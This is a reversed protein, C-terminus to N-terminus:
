HWSGSSDTGTVLWWWLLSDFNGRVCSWEMEEHGIAPSWLSFSLVEEEGTGRSTATSQLSAVGWGERRLVSCVLHSQSDRSTKGELGKTLKTAKEPWQGATQYGEWMKTGLVACLILPLVAGTCLLTPYCDGKSDEDGSSGCSTIPEPCVASGYEFQWWDILIRKSWGTKGM